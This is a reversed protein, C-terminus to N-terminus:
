HSMRIYSSINLHRDFLVYFNHHPNAAIFNMINTGVVIIGVFFVHNGTDAIQVIMEENAGAKDTNASIRYDAINAGAENVAGTITQSIL